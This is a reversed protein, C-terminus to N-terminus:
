SYPSCRLLMVVLLMLLMLLTVLGPCQRVTGSGRTKGAM